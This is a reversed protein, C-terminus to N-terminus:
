SFFAKEDLGRLPIPPPPPLPCLADVPPCKMEFVKKSNNM